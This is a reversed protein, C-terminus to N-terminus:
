FDRSIKGSDIFTQIYKMTNIQLLRFDKSGPINGHCSCFQELWPNSGAYCQVEPRFYKFKRSNLIVFSILTKTGRLEGTGTGPGPGPAYM